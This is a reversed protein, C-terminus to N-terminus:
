EYDVIMSDVLEKYKTELEEITKGTIYVYGNNSVAVDNRPLNIRNNVPYKIYDALSTKEIKLNKIKGPRLPLRRKIIHKNCNMSFDTKELIKNVLKSGYETEGIYKLLHAGASLRAAFDIFYFEDNNVIIDFMFPTNDLEISSIFCQILEEIKKLLDNSLNSPYTFGTEAAYPYVDSQIDYIFDLYIKSNCVHGMISVIKGAVYEQILYDTNASYYEFNKFRNGNIEQYDHVKTDVDAFFEKLKESNDFIKIGLSSMGGSPKIICPFRICSPLVSLSEKQPVTHYIQPTPIKLKQWIDYYIKKEKIKEYAKRSIGPLRLNENAEVLLNLQHDPFKPFIYNYKKERTLKFFIELSNEETNAFYVNEFKKIEEEILFYEPHFTQVIIDLDFKNDILNKIIFWTEYGQSLFLIKNM